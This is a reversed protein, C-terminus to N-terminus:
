AQSLLFRNVEEAADRGEKIAWVVLSQGRRCDGCAFVKPVSTQFDGRAKDYRAKYNSREDSDIGFQEALQNEPGLFGLALLCLECELVRQSGPVEAMRMQGNAAREWKVSVIKLGTLNGNADMVFEKTSVGYERIDEGDNLPAAEEHGYDVKYVVPWHPCPNNPARQTPPKTLLELNIVRKAGHRVSTGICDNGTDGGGIVVVNKGKADIPQKASPDSKANGWWQRWGKGVNGGDLLAKTNRTLFEMALHVGHADRGPVNTLDRAVTAGCALIVVDSQDMLEQPTPGVQLGDEGALVDGKMGGIQGAKGTIFTVGERKMIDVRRQVVDKKDAKMNPVGYMMLGGVRDAREYVTVTHGMKNLQDAAALGAPGSGVISVTKETRFPPPQPKMWGMEYAKDIISLEVSKISVPDDIIGLVCAGECPAPCVRGTFEPFNNTQMLRKFAQHWAGKLVLTNFEPILNGLPCGSRDTVSQHCFPTGCDMCRAAQTQITELNKPALIERFDPTREKVDRKPLEARDYATFGAEKPGQAKADKVTRPRNGKMMAASEEIDPM